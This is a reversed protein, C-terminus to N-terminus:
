KDWGKPSFSNSTKPAFLDAYPSKMGFNYPSDKKKLEDIELNKRLLLENMKLNKARELRLLDSIKEGDSNKEGISSRMMTINHTMDITTSKLRSNECILLEMKNKCDDLEAMNSKLLEIASELQMTTEELKVKLNDSQNSNDKTNNKVVIDIAKQSKQIKIIRSKREEIGSMADLKLIFDSLENDILFLPKTDVTDETLFAYILNKSKLLLVGIAIDLEIKSTDQKSM